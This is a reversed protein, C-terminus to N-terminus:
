VMGEQEGDSEDDDEIRKGIPRRKRQGKTFCALQADRGHLEGNVRDNNASQHLRKDNVEQGDNYKNENALYHHWRGTEVIVKVTDQMRNRQIENKIEYSDDGNIDELCIFEQRLKHFQESRTQVDDAFETPPEM